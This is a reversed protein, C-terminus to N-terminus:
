VSNDLYKDWDVAGATQPNTPTESPHTANYLDAVYQKASAAVDQPSADPNAAAMKRAIEVLQKRAIPSGAGGNPGTLNNMTLEDRVQGPINKAFHAERAGVFKDVVAGSHSLSTRYANRGVHNMLELMAQMDGNTARQMLEAPAGDTFNMGGSVKNLVEPDLTLTPAAEGQNSPNNDFMKGYAALPDVPTNTGENKNNPNGTGNNVDGANNAPAPQHGPQQRNPQSNNMTPEQKPAPAGGFMNALFSM